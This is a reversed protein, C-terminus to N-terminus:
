DYIIFQNFLEEFNDDDISENYQNQNNDILPPIHEVFMDDPNIPQDLTFDEANYFLVGVLPYDSVDNDDSYNLVLPFDTQIIDNNDNSFESMDVLPSNTSSATDSQSSTSTNTITPSLIYKSLDFKDDSWDSGTESINEYHERNNGKKQRPKYTYNPNKIAHLREAERAMTKFLDKVNEPENRWEEAIFKSIKASKENTGGQTLQYFAKLEAQKNRRYIFFCNPPRPVKGTGKKKNRKADRTDESNALLVDVDISFPYGWSKIFDYDSMNRGIIFNNFSNSEPPPPPPSQPVLPNNILDIAFSINCSM